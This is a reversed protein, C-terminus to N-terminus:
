GATKFVWKGHSYFVTYAQEGQGDNAMLLIGALINGNTMLIKTM